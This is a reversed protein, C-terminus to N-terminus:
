KVQYLYYARGEISVVDSLSIKRDKYKRGIYDAFFGPKEVDRVVYYVSEGSLLTEEVAFIGLAEFRKEDLPSTTYWDGLTLCRNLSFDGHSVVRAGGIPEAQYTEIFFLADEQKRCYEKFLQYNGDALLKERNSALTDRWCLVSLALFLGFTVFALCIGVKRRKPFAKMQWLAGAMVALDAVHMAKAVREPLRGVVGLALWLCGQVFLLLLLFVLGKRNRKWTYLLIYLALGIGYLNVPAYDLSFFQEIALRIGQKVRGITGQNEGSQRMAEAALAQMKEGDLDEMLYLAYHRLNRVEEETIGQEQFFEPNAEYSPVGYYDYVLSRADQFEMFEQWEQGRYAAHEVFLVLGVSLFVTAPLMWQKIKLPLRWGKFIGQSIVTRKQISVHKWLYFLGFGPMLMWFIDSRICFTLLLLVYVVGSERPSQMTVYFFLACGGAFAACLTWEFQAVHFLAAQTFLLIMFFGYAVKWGLDKELSFGRYLCAALGLFVTGTMCFGYWDVSPVFRYCGSILWGLVFKVFILHGDPEGTFAGSAIDRMIIDDAIAYIMGFRVYVCVMYIFSLLLAAAAAAGVRYRTQKM